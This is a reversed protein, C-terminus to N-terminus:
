LFSIWPEQMSDRWGIPETSKYQDLDFERKPIVHWGVLKRGRKVRAPVGL